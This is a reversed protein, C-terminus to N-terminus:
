KAIADQADDEGAFRIVLHNPLCVIPMANSKLTGMKVCLGDPCKADSVCITGDKILVTNSSEEWSIELTQVEEVDSLDIRRIVTGDQVIEVVSNGSTNWIWFFALIGFAFIAICLITVYKKVAKM